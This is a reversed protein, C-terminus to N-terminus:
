FDTKIFVEDPIHTSSVYSNPHTKILDTRLNTLYNQM